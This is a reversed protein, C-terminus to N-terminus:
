AGSRASLRIVSGAALLLLLILSALGWRNNTPIVVADAVSCSVVVTLSDSGSATTWEILVESSYQGPTTSNTASCTATVSQQAGAALNFSAPSASISPATGAPGSVPGASVSVDTDDSFGDSNDNSILVSGQATTNASIGVNLALSTSSASVDAALGICNIPYTVPSPAGNSAFDVTIPTAPLQLFGPGSISTITLDTDPSPNSITLEGAPSIAQGVPGQGLDVEIGPAPTSRYFGEGPPGTVIIEGDSSVGAVANAGGDAMQLASIALPYTDPESGAPLSFGLTGLSGSSLLAGNITVTISGSGSANCQTTAGPSPVDSGGCGALDAAGLEAQNYAIDFSISEVASIGADFRLEVSATNGPSSTDSGVSVAPAGQVGECTLTYDFSGMSTDISLTSSQPGLATPQCRLDLYEGSSAADVGAPLTFPPTTAFAVFEFHSNDSLSAGNITVDAGPGSGQADANGLLIRQPDSPSGLEVQSFDLTAGAAPDSTFGPTQLEVLCEATVVQSDSTTGGAGDPITWSVTIDGSWNGAGTDADASCDVSVDQDNGGALTFNSPSATLSPPTGSAGTLPGISLSVDTSADLGNSDDNLINLNAADSSADVTAVQLSLSAPDAVLVLDLGTYFAAEITETTETNPLEGRAIIDINSITGASAFNSHNCSRSDGAALPAALCDTAVESGGQAFLAQSDTVDDPGPNSITFSWAIPAGAQLIPGPASDASEGNAQINSITLQQGFYHGSATAEM